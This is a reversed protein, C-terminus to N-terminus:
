LDKGAKFNPTAEEAPETSAAATSSARSNARTAAVAKPKQKPESSGSRRIRTSLQQEAYVLTFGVVPNVLTAAVGMAESVIRRSTHVSVGEIMRLVSRTNSEQMRVLERARNSDIDGNALMRQVDALTGALKHLETEALARAAPWRDAVVARAADLMAAATAKVDISM